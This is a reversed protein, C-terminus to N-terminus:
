MHFAHADDVLSAVKVILGDFKTGMPRHHPGALTVVSMDRSGPNLDFGSCFHTPQAVGVIIGDGNESELRCGVLQANLALYIDIKIVVAEVFPGDRWMGTRKWELVRRFFVDVQHHIAQRAIRVVALHEMSPELLKVLRTLDDVREIKQVIEVTM